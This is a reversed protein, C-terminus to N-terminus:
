MICTTPSILLSSSAVDQEKPGHEKFCFLTPRNYEYVPKHTQVYM